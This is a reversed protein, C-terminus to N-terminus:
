PHHPTLIAVWGGGGAMSATLSQSNDVETQVIRHDTAEKHANVGDELVTAQWSGEGLFSLDIKLDRATWNTMSAVYWVGDKQKAMALYEGVQGHLAISQDYTTPLQTILRTFEPEARYRSPSDALMQLPADYLVYMAAQHARTGKSMPADNIPSFRSQVVNHMAGPTYDMPGSLMRLFPITVANRPADADAWKENELGKVGEYNIVNPYTRQLGSPKYMGHYNVLLQHEAAREAIAYVSAVAVQDDRDIFDIKMGKVGIQQLDEFITDMADLVARWSAWVIVGVGKSAGYDVITQLDVEANRQHLDNIDTWGWDITIYRVGFEAAFDIHHLYTATNQGAEFDVDRLTWDNWWDWTSQGPVIWSTDSVRSPAALKQAIDNNLLESDDTSIAIVRWPFERAGQTEAIYESRQTPILNMTQYGGFRVAEPIRAFAGQLCHNANGPQLYLGPYDELNAELLVAKKGHDLEVMMPLLAYANTHFESLAQEDYYAEFSSVFPTGDRYDNAYPIRVPYDKDFRFQVTEDRIQLVEARTTVFRYAVADDYVRIQIGYDGEVHVTLEHCHDHVEAKRYFPTKFREDITRMEHHKLAPQYGLIEGTSLTMAMVSPQLVVTDGHRVSWQLETDLTLTVHLLENPSRVELQVPDAQLAPLAFAILSIGALTLRQLPPTTTKMPRM